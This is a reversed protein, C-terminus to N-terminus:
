KDLFLDGQFLKNKRMYKDIENLVVFKKLTWKPTILAKRPADGTLRNIIVQDSLYELQKVTVKVYEELSLIHWPDQKYEQAMKTGKMIHLMHIKLGFINLKALDQVTKIMDSTTENPLGNIIHVVVKIGKANLLNLTNLFCQYNHGRNIRKLTKDNTSQLGIELVLDTKKALESLYNIKEIDLCDPRTSINIGVIKPDFDLTPEFTEKLKALSAYTNTNAQFYVIYLADPWKVLLKNKVEQFQKELSSNIDGAFEGSGDLCFTCGGSKKNPCSFGANLSVKFVKKGYRRRYYNNLTNYHKEETFYNM